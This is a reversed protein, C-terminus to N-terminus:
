PRAAMRRLTITRLGWEKMQEDLPVNVVFAQALRAAKGPLLPPAEQKESDWRDKEGTYAEFKYMLEKTPYGYQDMHGGALVSASACAFAFLVTKWPKM